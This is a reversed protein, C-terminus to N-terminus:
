SETDQQKSFLKRTSFRAADINQLVEDWTASEAKAEEDVADRAIWSRLMARTDEVSGIPPIVLDEVVQNTLMQQVDAAIPPYTVKGGEENALAIRLRKRDAPELQQALHWVDEFTTLTSM